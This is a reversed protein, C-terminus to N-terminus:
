NKMEEAILEACEGPTMRGTDVRVTQYESEEYETQIVPTGSHLESQRRKLVADDCTVHAETYHGAGITQRIFERDAKSKSICAIIVVYGQDMLLKALNATKQLNTRIDHATFGLDYNISSRIADGDLLIPREIMKMLEKAVTTKGSCNLGSLLVCKGSLGLRYCNKRYKAAKGASTVSNWLTEFVYYALIKGIFELVGIGVSVKLDGTLCYAIVCTIGSAFTRYAISKL